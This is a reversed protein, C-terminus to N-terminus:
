NLIYQYFYKKEIEGREAHVRAWLLGGIAGQARKYDCLSLCKIENGLIFHCFTRFISCDEQVM